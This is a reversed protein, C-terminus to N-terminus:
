GSVSTVRVTTGQWIIWIAEFFPEAATVADLFGSPWEAEFRNANLYILLQTGPPYVKAKKIAAARVMSVLSEDSPADDAVVENRVSNAPKRYEDGRRRGNTDAEVLEFSEVGESTKLEFDPREAPYPVLRVSEARRAAGFEAAVIAERIFTLGGKNFFVDSGIAKRLMDSTQKMEAPSQWRELLRRQDRIAQRSLEPAPSVM